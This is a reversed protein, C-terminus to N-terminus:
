PANVFENQDVRTGGKPNIERRPCASPQSVCPAESGAPLIGDYAIAHRCELISDEM